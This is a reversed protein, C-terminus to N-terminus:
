DAALSLSDKSVEKITVAHDINIWTRTVRIDKSASAKTYALTEADLNNANELRLAARHKGIWSSYDKPSAPHEVLVWSDRSLQVIHFIDLTVNMSWRAPRRNAKTGDTQKEYSETIGSTSYVFPSRDKPFGIHYDKGPKLFPSDPATSTVPAASQALICVPIASLFLVALLIRSRM